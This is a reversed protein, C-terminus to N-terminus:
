VLSLLASEGYLFPRKRKVCCVMRSSAVLANHGAMRIVPETLRIYKFLWAPQTPTRVFSFWLATRTNIEQGSYFRGTILIFGPTVAAECAGLALRCAVLGAYNFCAAHLTLTVGWLFVCAALYRGLPVKQFLASHIPLAFIYAIYFQSGLWSYQAESFHLDEEFRLLHAYNIVTKDLFTLCYVVCMIPMLYWDIKKLVHSYEEPTADLRESDLVQAFTDVDANNLNYVEVEPKYASEPPYSTGETKHKSSTSVISKSDSAM